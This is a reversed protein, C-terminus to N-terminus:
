PIAPPATDSISYKFPIKLRPKQAYVQTKETELKAQNEVRMIGNSLIFNMFLNLERKEHIKIYPSKFGSFLITKRFIQWHFPSHIAHLLVSSDKTLNIDLFEMETSGCYSKSTWLNFYVEETVWASVCM